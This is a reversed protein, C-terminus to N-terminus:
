LSRTLVGMGHPENRCRVGLFILQTLDAHRQYLSFLVHSNATTTAVRGDRVLGAYSHLYMTLSVDRVSVEAEPGDRGHRCMPVHTTQAGGCDSCCESCHTLKAARALFLLVTRSSRTRCGRLNHKILVEDLRQLISQRGCSAHAHAQIPQAHKQCVRWGYPVDNGERKQLPNSFLNHWVLPGAINFPSIRSISMELSLM